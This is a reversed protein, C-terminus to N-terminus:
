CQSKSMGLRAYTAVAAWPMYGSSLASHNLSQAISLMNDKSRSTMSARIAGAQMAYKLCHVLTTPSSDVWTHLLQQLLGPLSIILLNLRFCQTIHQRKGCFGMSATCVNKSCCCYIVFLRELPELLGAKPHQSRWLTQTLWAVFASM